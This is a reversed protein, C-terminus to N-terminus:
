PRTPRTSTLKVDAGYWLREPMVKLGIPEVHFALDVGQLELSQEVGAPLRIPRYLTKALKVGFGKAFAARLKGPVDVQGLAARCAANRSAIIEDVLAWSAKSPEVRVNLEVDGFRPTLVVEAGQAKLGFAGQILYTTPVVKGEVERTVDLDGCVVGALGASDWKLRVAARGQGEAVSVPLKLRIQDRGFSLAPRGPRLVGRLEHVLVDLTLVGITMRSGFLLNAKVDEAAHLKVNKVTIRVERMLGTVMEEAVSETFATPVGIMVDARPAQALGQDGGASLAQVFRRELGDSEAQLGALEKDSPTSLPSWRQWLMSVAGTTVLLTLMGTTIWVWRRRRTM